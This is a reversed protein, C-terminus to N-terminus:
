MILNVVKKMIIERVRALLPNQHLPAQGACDKCSGACDKCSGWDGQLSSPQGCGAVIKVSSSLHSPVYGM